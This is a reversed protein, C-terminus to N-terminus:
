DHEAFRSRLYLFGGLEGLAKDCAMRRAMDETAFARANDTGDFAPPGAPVSALDIIEQATLGTHDAVAQIAAFVKHVSRFNVRSLLAVIDAGTVDQGPLKKGHTERTPMRM